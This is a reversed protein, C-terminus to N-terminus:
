KKDGTRIFKVRKPVFVEEVDPKLKHWLDIFSKLEEYNDTDIKIIKIKRM